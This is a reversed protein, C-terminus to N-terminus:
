FRVIQARITGSVPRSLMLNFHHRADRPKGMFHLSTGVLRDGVFMALPDTTKAALISFNKAISMRNTTQQGHRVGGL